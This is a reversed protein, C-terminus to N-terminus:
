NICQYGRLKRFTSEGGGRFQIRFFVRPLTANLLLLVEIVYSPPPIPQLYPAHGLLGPGKGTLQCRVSVRVACHHALVAQSKSVTQYSTQPLYQM